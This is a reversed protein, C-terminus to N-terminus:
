KLLKLREEELRRALEGQDTVENKIDAVRRNYLEYENLFTSLEVFM